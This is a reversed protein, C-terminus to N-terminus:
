ANDNEVPLAACFERFRQRWEKGQCSAGVMAELFAWEYNAVGKFPATLAAIQERLQAIEADKAAHVASKRRDELQAPFRDWAAHPRSTDLM